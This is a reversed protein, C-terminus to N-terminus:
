ARQKTDIYHRMNDIQHQTYNSDPFNRMGYSGHLVISALDYAQAAELATSFSGLYTSKSDCRITSWYSDNTDRLTVGKFPSSESRPKRSTKNQCNQKPTAERINNISNNLTNHDIHDLWLESQKGHKLFWIVHHVKFNKQREGPTVGYVAFMHYKNGTAGALSTKLRDGAKYVGNPSAEKWYLVGKEFDATLYHNLYDREALSWPKTLRAM